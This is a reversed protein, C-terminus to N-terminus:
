IVTNLFQIITDKTPKADYEIVQGDKLLKITPYGEIKFRNMMKEVDPSENTCNVETFVLTYGNVVKGNYETKVQEWEPKATKCHPCWDVTFLMIEAEQNNGETTNRHESNAKYVTKFKNSLYKYAFYFVVLLVILLLVYLITNANLANRVRSVFGGGVSAPQISSRSSFNSYLPM